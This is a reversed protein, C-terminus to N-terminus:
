IIHLEYAKSLADSKKNVGLKLYMNQIHTRVTASSICLSGAIESRSMGKSIMRLIEEERCTLLSSCSNLGSILCAYHTCLVKLRSIYEMTIGDDEYFYELIPLLNSGNEGFPLIINDAQGIVLAKLLYDKAKETDGRKFSAISLHIYNHLFGLQNNFIHFYPIFTECMAEARSWNKSLILVKGYVVYSFVAGQLLLSNISMDGKKIWNPIKEYEGTCAYIYGLCLDFTNLLISEINDSVEESLNNILQLAESYKNQYIYLRALTLSACVVMSTQNKTRATYISKLAKVEVSDFYGTELAYEASVLAESGLGAGGSLCAYKELSSESINKFTGAKKYYIYSLHPSGFSFPGQYSAIVSVGGNLLELAEDIHSIMVDLDNFSLFMKNVHIAAEIEAKERGKYEKFRMEDEFQALLEMGHKREGAIIFLMIFKLRAIPHNNKAAEPVSDYYKFMMPRNSAKIYLSPKELENLITEYDEAMFLYYFSQNIDNQRIYWHGARRYIEKVDIGANVSENRLFSRFVNHITYTGTKVDLRIFANERYLRDITEKISEIGTSYVAMEVTFDDTVSLACLSKKTEDDYCDYLTKLLNQVATIKEPLMGERLGRYILYIAAAWGDAMKQIGIIQEKKVPMSMAAFYRRVDTDNFRLTSKDIFYVLNKVILETMDIKLIHRSIIVLHFNPIECKALAVLLKNIMDTEAFQYDDFVLIFNSDQFCSMVADTLRGIQMSDQPFGLGDVIFGLKENIDRIYKTLISWFYDTNKSAENLPIWAYKLKNISLYDRVATSKGYGMPATVITLPYNMISELEKNVGHRHLVKHITHM